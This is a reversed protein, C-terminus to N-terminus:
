FLIRQWTFDISTIYKIGLAKGGIQRIGRIELHMFKRHTIRGGLIARIPKLRYARKVEM